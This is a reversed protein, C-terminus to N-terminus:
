SAASSVVIKGAEADVIVREDNYWTWGGNDNFQTTPAATWGMPYSDPEEPPTYPCTSPGTPEDVAGGSGGAGMEGGAGGGPDSVDGGMGGAGDTEGPIGGMGGASSTDGPPTGGSGG